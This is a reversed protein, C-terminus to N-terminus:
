ETKQEPIESYYIYCSEKYDYIFYAWFIAESYNNYRKEIYDSYYREKQGAM